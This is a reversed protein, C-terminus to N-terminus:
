LLVSVATRAFEILPAPYLGFVLIGATTVTLAAGVPLSATVPTEDTPPSLVMVKVVRLYYYASIVSNLVGVIALWTLGANVAAGFIYIKAMFGVTPPVGTLSIMSFAMVASLLPARRYMGAFGGIEDTGTRATVAIVAAFAALNTVAYGSLYFLVGSPGTDVQASDVRAAVAALGVMIYGAHAVTSYALMRKINSQAIAILNGVTMSLAALVAFIASWEISLAELPFAVYFVRLIVAFGAAKSAVSLFATISTPAGEYVDPAWMQFPFATIKFGFGAIILVAGFLLAYSGFPTGGDLGIEAIRAAVESLVTSGTFGYVLVMGYLLLASSIGSLILFKLGSESSRGEPMFAALAAIPLATLELAVYITILEVSSALLMMGSTSFLVLAYFEAEFSRDRRAYAGSMLIVVAAVPVLLLKFFLSFRDVVLSSSLIGENPIAAGGDLDLWLLIGLALPVVLGLLALPALYGKRRVVLDVLLLLAALSAIAIEPSLLYIDHATM